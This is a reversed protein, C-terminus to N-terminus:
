AVHFERMEETKKIECTDAMSTDGDIQIPIRQEAEITIVNGKLLHVEKFRTHKGFFVTVFLFLVKWKSIDDIVLVSLEPKQIHATPAIKMGGGYFPHNSITVMFGKEFRSVHGDVIVKLAVPEFRSLGQILALVYSLSGIGLRNLIKKYRSKNAILAVTADFGIGISNLFFAPPLKKRGNITYMGLRCRRSKPRTVLKRFLELSNSKVGIGRSFDNGSGAPITSVPISRHHRLGNMVENLTGDGGIVLISTIKEKYIEAVQEAIKKGHGEYETLFTRCEKQKFLPDKQITKFLKMAKGNGATPNVIVIYM